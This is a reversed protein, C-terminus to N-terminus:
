FLEFPPAVAQLTLASLFLLRRRESDEWARFMRIAEDTISESCAVVVKDIYFKGKLNHDEYPLAFSRKVQDLIKDYHGSDVLSAKSSQAHIKGICAVVAYWTFGGLRVREYFVIDKGHDPRGSHHLVTIGEFGM